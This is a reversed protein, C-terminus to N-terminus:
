YGLLCITIYGVESLSSVSPYFPSLTIDKRYQPPTDFPYLLFYWYYKEEVM